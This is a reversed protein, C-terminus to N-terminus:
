IDLFVATWFYPCANYSHEIHSFISHECSLSISPSVIWHVIIIYIYIKLLLQIYRNTFAPSTQKLNNPLIIETCLQPIYIYIYIYMYIYVYIITTWLPSSQILHDEVCASQVPYVIALISTHCCIM